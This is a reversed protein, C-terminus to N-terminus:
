MLRVFERHSRFAIDPLNDVPFFAAESADDGPYPIGSYSRVLYGVMLVTHYQANTNTSVGILRDITGSVGTEEHLERLAAAEPSEGLEMFGGPLCWWGKKPEVNRKVCLIGKQADCLVVCTAPVPNEYIPRACRICFPRIRGEIERYELPLACFHCYKKQKM